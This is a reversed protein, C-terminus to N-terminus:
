PAIANCGSYACVISNNLLALTMRWVNVISLGLTTGVYHNVFNEDLGGAGLEVIRLDPLSLNLTNARLKAMVM